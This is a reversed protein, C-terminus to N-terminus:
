LGLKNVTIIITGFYVFNLYTDKLKDYRQQIRRFQKLWSFYNEVIHRKRLLNKEFTTNINNQNNRYPTVISINDNRRLKRKVKGNIYGKDGILRSRIIQIASNDLVNEILSSDHRNATSLHISIPVGKENVIVSIKNGKRNRDFHNKGTFESGNINKILTSDIFLNKTSVSKIGMSVIVRYTLEFLGISVLKLYFKHITTYHVKSDLARWPTGYKLVFFIKNIYYSFDAKLKRGSKKKCLTDYLLKMTKLIIAKM